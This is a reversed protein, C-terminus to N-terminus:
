IEIGVCQEFLADVCRRLGFLSTYVAVVHFESLFNALLCYLLTLFCVYEGSDM